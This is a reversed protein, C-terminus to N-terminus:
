HGEGQALAALRDVTEQAAALETDVLGLLQEAAALRYHWIEVNGDAIEDAAEVLLDDLIDRAADERAAAAAADEGPLAPVTLAPEMRALAYALPRLDLDDLPTRPRPIPPVITRM